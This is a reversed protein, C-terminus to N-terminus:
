KERMELTFIFSNNNESIQYHIEIYEDTKIIKTTYMEIDINTKYEKIGM